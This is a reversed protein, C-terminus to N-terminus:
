AALPVQIKPEQKPPRPMSKPKLTVALRTKLWARAPTEVYRTLTWAMALLMAVDLLMFTWSQGRGYGNLLQSQLPMPVRHLLRLLLESAPVHLVFVAFSAEGWRVLPRAGLWSGLSAGQALGYILMAFIPAAFGNHVIPFPLRHSFLVIMGLLGSATAVCLNAPVRVSRKRDDLYLRSLLVGMLFEASRLLPTFKLMKMWVATDLSIGNDFLLERSIGDLRGYWYVLGPLLSLAWLGLMMGLLAGRSRRTRMLWAGALPLISYFFLEASLSWTPFNWRSSTLPTWAHLLTAVAVAHAGFEAFFMPVSRGHWLELAMPVATVCLSVFYLPYIRTIRNIWFGKLDFTGAQLEDLYRVGLVFGSLVFFFCTGLYGAHFLNRLLAGAATALGRWAEPAAQQMSDATHDSLKGAFHYGVLNLAVFIRIGVLADLPSAGQRRPSV